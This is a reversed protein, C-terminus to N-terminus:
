NYLVSQYLWPMASAAQLNVLTLGGLVYYTGLSKSDNDIGKNVMNELVILIEKQIVSINNEVQMRGLNFHRFPNGHPHCIQKKTTESIQSRYNWIEMLEKVLKLLKDKNLSTFWTADSYNGLANMNQFLDLIRLEASKNESIESNIDVMNINLELDLLNGMRLLTNFDRITNKHLSKRNYPNQLQKNKFILNYFSLIDFGYIFNDEDKFSFFQLSPIEHLNEMTLFDNDNVCLQLKRAAPGRCKCFKQVIYRRFNTQIKNAFNSLYLFCFLRHVLEKKNSGGPCKLKYYKLYSKLKPITFNNSVLLNYDSFLIKSPPTFNKNLTIEQDGVNSLCKNNLTNIYEILDLM